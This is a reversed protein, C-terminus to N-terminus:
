GSPSVMPNAKAPRSAPRKRVNFWFGAWILLLGTLETVYLVQTHGARTAAGGIGPLIAGIAILTNGIFRDRAITDPQGTALHARRFRVASLIAGGVLFIVAYLNIFPSFARVWQWEFATGSPLRPNVVAFNIPSAIVCIAAVSVAAVLVISTVWATRRKLLLWVTGQALPSGGLLAGVVYWFKFIFPNWGFLTIWGEAFTGLGYIVVGSAWWLLHAGGRLRYRDLIQLAFVVSLATTIIPLYHIWTVSSSM